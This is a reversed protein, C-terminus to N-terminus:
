EEVLERLAEDIIDDNQELNILLRLNRDLEGIGREMEDDSITDNDNDDSKVTEDEQNRIESKIVQREKETEDFCKYQPNYSDCRWTHNEDSRNSSSYVTLDSM